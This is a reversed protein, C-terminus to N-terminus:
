SYDSRGSSRLDKAVAEIAKGVSAPDTVGKVLAQVQDDMEAEIEPEWLWNLPTIADAFMPLFERAIADHIGVNSAASSSYVQLGEVIAHDVEPRSAYELLAEVSDRSAAARAPM